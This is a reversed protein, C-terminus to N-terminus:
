RGIQSNLLASLSGSAQKKFADSGAAASRILAIVRPDLREPETFVDRAEASIASDIAANKISDVDAGADQFFRYNFTVNIKLPDDSSWDTGVEGVFSPYADILRTVYTVKGFENYKLLDIPAIYDDYYGVLFEKAQTVGTTRSRGVSIDQWALFFDREVFNQSLLITATVPSADFGYVQKREPGFYKINSTLPARSPFSISDCRLSLKEILNFSKGGTLGRPFGFRVEFHSGKAIGGTGNNPDEKALESIFRNILLAM